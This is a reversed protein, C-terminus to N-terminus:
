MLWERVSVFGDGGMVVMDDNLTMREMASMGVM